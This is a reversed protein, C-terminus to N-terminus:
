FLTNKHSASPKITLMFLRVKHGHAAATTVGTPLWTVATMAVLSPEILEFVHVYINEKYFDAKAIEEDQESGWPTNFGQWFIKTLDQCSEM